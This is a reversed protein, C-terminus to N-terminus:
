LSERRELASLSDGKQWNAEVKSLGFALLHQWNVDIRELANSSSISAAVDWFDTKKEERLNQSMKWLQSHSMTNNIKKPCEPHSSSPTASALLLAWQHYNDNFGTSLEGMSWDDWQFVVLAKQLRELESDVCGVSFVFFLLM